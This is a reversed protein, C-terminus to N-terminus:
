IKIFNNIFIIIILIKIFFNIFNIFLLMKLVLLFGCIGYVCM